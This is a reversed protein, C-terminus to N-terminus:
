DHIHEFVTKCSRSNKTKNNENVGPRKAERLVKAETPVSALEIIKVGREATINTV